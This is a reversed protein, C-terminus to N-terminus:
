MCIGQIGDQLQSNHTKVVVFDQELFINLLLLFSEANKSKCGSITLNGIIQKFALSMVDAFFRCIM